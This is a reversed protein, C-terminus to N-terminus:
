WYKKSKLTQRTGLAGKGPRMISYIINEYVESATRNETTKLYSDLKRQYLYKNSEYQLSQLNYKDEVIDTTQHEIEHKIEDTKSRVTFFIRVNLLHHDSIYM